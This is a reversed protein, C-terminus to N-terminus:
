NMGSGDLAWLISRFDYGSTSLFMRNRGKVKKTQFPDHTNYKSLLVSFDHIADYFLCNEVFIKLIMFDIGTTLRPSRGRTDWLLPKLRMNKWKLIWRFSDIFCHSFYINQTESGNFTTIRTLRKMKSKVDLVSLSPSQIFVLVVVYMFAFSM